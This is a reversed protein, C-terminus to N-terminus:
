HENQPRQKETNFQSHTKINEFRVTSYKEELICYFYEAEIFSLKLFLLKENEGFHRKFM